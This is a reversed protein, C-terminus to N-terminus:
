SGGGCWTDPFPQVCVIKGGQVKQPLMLGSGGDLPVRACPVYLNVKRLAMLKLDRRLKLKQWSAQKDKM